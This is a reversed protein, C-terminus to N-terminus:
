KRKYKNHDKIIGETLWNALAQRNNEDVFRLQDRYNQINGLEIFVAVPNTKRLVYLNRSSVTGEFGRRPQHKKYKSDFTQRLTIAMDKGKRSGKAHYFFVDIQKRKSRSDLHIIICRKYSSKDKRYLKNVANVRQNLRDMQDLPIKEGLCTEDNDYALFMDDRIGDDADQIIMHVKAGKSILNKALRLVIDYAYEDEYMPHVGYKGMAGPDPGGHGNILYFVAGDLENSVVKTKEYKKGFLPETVVDENAPLIYEQHMMLSNNKGFRGKNLELFKKGYKSYSLNHRRLFSYIGEGQKPKDKPLGETSQSMVSTGSFLLLLALYIIFKKRM